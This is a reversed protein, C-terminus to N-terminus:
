LRICLIPPLPSVHHAVDQLSVVCLFLSLGIIIQIAVTGFLDSDYDRPSLIYDAMIFLKQVKFQVSSFQSSLESSLM